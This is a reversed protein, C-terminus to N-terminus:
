LTRLFALLAGRDGATLQTTSGMRDLNDDIVAELTAYRGDHFYPATGALFLLPPTRFAKDSDGSAHSGVDHPKRDSTGGGLQLLGIGQALGARPLARQRRAGRLM